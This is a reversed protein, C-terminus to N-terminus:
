EWNGEGGFFVTLKLIIKVNKKFVNAYISKKKYSQLRKPINYIKKVFLNERFFCLVLVICFM